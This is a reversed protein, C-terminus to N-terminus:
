KEVEEIRWAVTFGRRVADAVHLISFTPKTQMQEDKKGPKLRCRM